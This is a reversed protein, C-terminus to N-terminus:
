LQELFRDIASTVSNNGRGISSNISAHTYARGDFGTVPNGVNRMASIFNASIRDRNRGGSWLVLAPPQRRNAVYSIPSWHRWKSKKNLASYLAPVRGNNIKALYELDYAGTDNCILLKPTAAGSLTALSSLHCGASHGMLAIRNPDGGYTPANAQMWNVAAAIQVAQQEANAGPYLTYGVSAFLFGKSPYHRSKSGVSSKSGLRWAGGHVFMVIPTNGANAPQYIDLKNKGYSIDKFTKAVAPRSWLAPIALGAAAGAALELSQRRNIHNAMQFKEQFGGQLGTPVTM